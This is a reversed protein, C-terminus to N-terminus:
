QVVEPTLNTPLLSPTYAFGHYSRMHGSSTFVFNDRHITLPGGHRHTQAQAYQQLYTFYTGLLQQMNPLFPGQWSVGFVRGAPSVYERVTVGSSDTIQHVRYGEHVEDRIQGRLFHGDASVSAEAEGLVAAAPAAGLILALLVGGLTKMFRWGYMELM